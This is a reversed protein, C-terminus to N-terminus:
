RVVRGEAGDSTAATPAAPASPVSPVSPTSCVPGDPVPTADHRSAAVARELRRRRLVLSLAYIALVTLGIVYGADVYSV